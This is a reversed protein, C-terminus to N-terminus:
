KIGSPLSIRFRCVHDGKLPSQLMEIDLETDLIVEFPFKAFGASCYCWEADVNEKGEDLISERAFPCHCAYYCKLIPDDTNLYNIGDFPIKTVYLSDGERVASLIEQNAAVYDVIDQTIEQEFWVRKSDCFDQLEAVKRKHRSELYEDLSTAKEYEEKESYMAEKPIGHNNGALVKKYVDPELHAKLREMLNATFDPKESPRSGLPPEELDKFIFDLTAEDTHSRLRKKINDIVGLGGLIKTFYIYGSHNDILYFYRALALIVPLTNIKKKILVQMYAEIEGPGSTEFTKNSSILFNAMDVVYGVADDSAKKDYGRRNYLDRLLDEKVM